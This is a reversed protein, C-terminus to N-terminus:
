NNPLIIDDHFWVLSVKYRDGLYHTTQQQITLARKDNQSMRLVSCHLCKHFELAYCQKLIAVATESDLSTTAEGVDVSNKVQVLKRSSGLGDNDHVTWGM